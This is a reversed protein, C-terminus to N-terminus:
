SDEPPLVTIVVGSPPTETDAYAPHAPPGPSRASRVAAVVAVVAGALLLWMGPELTLRADRRGLLLNAALMAVTSVTGLLFATGTLTTRSAAKRIGVIAAALLIASAVLLPVGVPAAPATLEDQGPFRYSSRWAGTVARVTETTGSGFPQDSRFLPLFSGTITLLAALAALAPVSFRRAPSEM